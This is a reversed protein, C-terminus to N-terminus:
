APKHCVFFLTDVDDLDEDTDEAEDDVKAADHYHRWVREGGMMVTASLPLSIHPPPNNHHQHWATTKIAACELPLPNGMIAQSNRFQATDEKNSM